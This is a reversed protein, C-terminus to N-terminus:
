RLLKNILTNLFEIGQYGYIIVRETDKTLVGLKRTIVPYDYVIVPVIWMNPNNIGEIRALVRTRPDGSYIDVVDIQYEPPLNMNARNVALHMRQCVPCYLDIFLVRM